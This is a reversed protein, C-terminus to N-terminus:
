LKKPHGERLSILLQDVIYIGNQSKADLLPSMASVSVMRKSESWSISM